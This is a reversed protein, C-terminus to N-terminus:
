DRRICSFVFGRRERELHRGWSRGRGWAAARAQGRASPRAGGGRTPAVCGAVRAQGGRGARGCPAAGARLQRHARGARTRPVGGGPRGSGGAGLAQTQQARRADLRCDSRLDVDILRQSPRFLLPPMLRAFEFHCYSWGPTRKGVTSVLVPPVAPPLGAEGVKLLSGLTNSANRIGDTSVFTVIANSEQLRPCFSLKINEITGFRGFYRELNLMSM